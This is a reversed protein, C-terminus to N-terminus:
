RAEVSDHSRFSAERQAIFSKYLTVAQSREKDLPTLALRVKVTRADDPVFDDGFLSLDFASYTTLRDAEDAAHYRTSIAYCDQPHAMLVVGLDSRPDAMVALCYRYHRVPCMQVVSANRENREWRGDVSRRAALADRAFVPLTGRIIDSVMPVVPGVASDARHPALYVHPVFRKDFYNTLFVEYGAYV